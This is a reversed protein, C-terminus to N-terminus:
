KAGRSKFYNVYDKYSMAGTKYAASQKYEELSPLGPTANAKQKPMPTPTIKGKPNPKMGPM